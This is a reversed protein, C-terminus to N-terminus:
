QLIMNSKRTHVSKVVKINKLRGDKEVIFNIFVRGTIENFRAEVPYKIRNGLFKYMEKVGGPFQPMNDVETYIEEKFNSDKTQQSFSLVSYVIFVILLLVKRM